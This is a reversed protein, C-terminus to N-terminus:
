TAWRARRPREKYAKRAEEVGRIELVGNVPVEWEEEHPEGLSTTVTRQPGNLREIFDLRHVDRRTIITGREDDAGVCWRGIDVGNLYVSCSMAWPDIDVHIRM